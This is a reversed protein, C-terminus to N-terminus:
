FGEVRKEELEDMICVEKVETHIGQNTHHWLWCCVLLYGLVIMLLSKTKAKDEFSKIHLIVIHSWTWMSSISIKLCLTSLYCLIYLLIFKDNDNEFQYRFNLYILQCM